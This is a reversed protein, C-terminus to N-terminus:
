NLLQSSYTCLRIGLFYIFVENEAPLEQLFVYECVSGPLCMCVCISMCDVLTFFLDHAFDVLWM